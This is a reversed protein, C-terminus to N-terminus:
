SEVARELELGLTVVGAQIDKPIKKWRYPACHDFVTSYAPCQQLQASVSVKDSELAVVYRYVLSSEENSSWSRWSTYVLGADPDTSDIEHGSTALSRKVQQLVADPEGAVPVVSPEMPTLCATASVAFALCAAARATRPANM